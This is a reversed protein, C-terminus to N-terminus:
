IAMQRYLPFHTSQVQQPDAIVKKVIKDYEAQNNVFRWTEFNLYTDSFGSKWYFLSDMNGGVGGGIHLFRMNLERGLLSM